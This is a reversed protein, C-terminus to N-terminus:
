SVSSHLKEEFVTLSPGNGQAQWWTTQPLDTLDYGGALWGHKIIANHLASCREYDMGNEDSSPRNSETVRHHDVEDLAPFTSPTRIPLNMAAAM